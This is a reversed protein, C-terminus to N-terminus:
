GAALEPRNRFGELAEPNAIALTNQVAEGRVVATVALEVLKGSRTRPMEVVQLIKAPVHRPTTNSRIEDKIRGRLVDDLILGERLVVFLVIREDGRWPQAIALSEVVEDLREVQRYIEATGIRVGGPNLVADSRGHIVVGGHATIEAYDGHAWVGPFRAFYAKHYRRGDADNWFGVPMSPFPRTCVLEGRQGVDCAGGSEDFVAVAMGLGPCQLEGRYVPLMPNGLAFCSLIDTGGSISALLVDPSIERYVYDYSEPALPSGTSLVTRLRGLDAVLRPQCNRKELAALYRASTGFVTIGEQGAIRWLVDAKPHAPSGDYLVITAGVALAGLLWNWMMWGCTTYYFVVDDSGIDTHLVHEKLHQLLVGGAGHVICKPKGTTGSSFVIALPHEFPLSEFAPAAQRDGFDEFHCAGPISSLEPRDELFGIVVVRALGPLQAAVDAVVARTDLLKGSWSYGDVAFLVRPAVQGLRDVVGAVGFDPSCSSWIAGVSGAALAAIVAEPCNAVFGAVRDGPVVGLARLGAAVRAVELHLQRRTLMRRRGREDHFVIAPRDSVEGLLHKAHNLRAGSFWRAGPMRDGRDLISDAERDFQAGCFGAVLEWFDQPHDISWCRLADYDPLQEGTRSRVERLFRAMASREARDREPRWLLAQSM